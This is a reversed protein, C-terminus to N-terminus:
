GWIIRYLKSFPLLIAESAPSDCKQTGLSIGAFIGLLICMIAAAITLALKIRPDRESGSHAHVNKHPVENEEGGQELQSYPQKRQSWLSSLAM